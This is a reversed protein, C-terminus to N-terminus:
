LINLRPFGVVQYFVFVGPLHQPNKTSISPSSGGVCPNETRHEVLQAVDGRLWILQLAFIIRPPSIAFDNCSLVFFSETNVKLSKQSHSLEVVGDGSVRKARDPDM